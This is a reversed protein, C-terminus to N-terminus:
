IMLGTLRYQAQSEAMVSPLYLKLLSGNESSRSDRIMSPKNQALDCFFLSRVAHILNVRELKDHIMDKM